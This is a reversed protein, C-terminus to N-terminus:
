YRSKWAFTKIKMAFVSSSTEKTRQCHKEVESIKLLQQKWLYLMNTAIGLASAAEPVSYGQELVLAVAEEKFEKTYTKYTRKKSM